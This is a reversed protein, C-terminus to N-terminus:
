VQEGVLPEISVLTKSRPTYYIRYSMGSVLATYAHAPVRFKLKDVKYYYTTSEGSSNAEGIVKGAVTRVQGGLVDAVRRLGSALTVLGVSAFALGM